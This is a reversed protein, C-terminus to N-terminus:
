ETSSGPFAARYLELVEAKEPLGEGGAPMLAALGEIYRLTEADTREYPPLVDLEHMALAGRWLPGSDVVVRAGPGELTTLLEEGVTAVVAQGFERLVADPAESLWDLPARAAGDRLRATVEGLSQGVAGPVFPVPPGVYPRRLRPAAFAGWEYTQLFPRLTRMVLLQCLALEVHTEWSLDGRVGGVWWLAEGGKVAAKWLLSQVAGFGYLVGKIATRAPGVVPALFAGVEKDATGPAWGMAADVLPFAGPWEILFKLKAARATAIEEESYGAERLNQELSSGSFGPLGKLGEPGLVRQFAPHLGPELGGSMAYLPGTVDVEAGRLGAFILDQIAGFVPGLSLGVGFLQDTTQAVQLAEGWGFGIKGTRETERLRQMYTGGSSGSLLSFQRKAEKSLAYRHRGRLERVSARMTGAALERVGRPYFVNIVNLIDAATAIWGLGPIVRGSIKTAVRGLVSLTVLADQVNDIEQGIKAFDRVVDPVPSARLLIARERRRRAQEEESLSAVPVVHVVDDWGPLQVRFRPREAKPVRGSGVSLGTSVGLSVRFSEVPM